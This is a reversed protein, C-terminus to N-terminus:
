VELINLIPTPSDDHAVARVVRLTSAGLRSRLPNDVEMLGFCEGGHAAVHHVLPRTVRLARDDKEDRPAAARTGFCQAVRRQDLQELPTAVSKAHTCGPNGWM